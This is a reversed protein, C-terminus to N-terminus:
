IPRKGGVSQSTEKVGVGSQVWATLLGIEQPTLQTKGKPPMHKTMLRFIPVNFLTVTSPMELGM